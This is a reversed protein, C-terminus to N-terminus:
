EVIVAVTDAAEEGASDAVRVDLQHPGTTLNVVLEVIGNDDPTAGEALLGDADSWVEVEAIDFLGNGDSVIAVVSVESPVTGGDPPSSISVAPAANGPDVVEVDAATDDGTEAGSCAAMFLLAGIRRARM